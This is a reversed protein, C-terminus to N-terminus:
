NRALYFKHPYESHNALSPADFSLPTTTFPSKRKKRKSRESAIDELGEYELGCNNYQVIYGRLQEKNVGFRIIKFPRKSNFDPGLEDHL